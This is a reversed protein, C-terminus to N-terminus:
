IAREIVRAKVETSSPARPIPLEAGSAGAPRNPILPSRDGATRGRGGAPPFLDVRPSRIRVWLLIFLVVSLIGALIGSFFLLLEM